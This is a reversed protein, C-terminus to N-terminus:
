DELPKLCSRLHTKSRRWLHWFRGPALHLHAALHTLNLHTHLYTRVLRHADAGLAHPLSDVARALALETEIAALQEAPDPQGPDPRCARRLWPIGAPPLEAPTRTRAQRRLFRCASRRAITRLWAVLSGRAPAPDVSPLSAVVEVWAEQVCEEMQGRTVACTGVEARIHPDALAVLDNWIASPPRSVCGYTDARTVGQAVRVRAVATHLCRTRLVTDDGSERAAVITVVHGPGFAPFLMTSHWYHRPWAATAVWARASHREGAERHRDATRSPERTGHCPARPPARKPLNTSIV